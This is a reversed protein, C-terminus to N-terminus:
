SDTIPGLVEFAADRIARLGLLWLAHDGEVKLAGTMFVADATQEGSIMSLATDYSCSVTIDAEGAKGQHLSGIRGAAIELHFIMKGDPSGSVIYQLCASLEDGAQVGALVSEAEGFWEPSLFLSM